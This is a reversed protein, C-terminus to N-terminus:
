VNKKGRLWTQLDRQARWAARSAPDGKSWNGFRPATTTSSSDQASSITDSGNKSRCNGFNRRTAWCSRGSTASSAARSRARCIGGSTPSAARRKCNRSRDGQGPQAACGATPPVSRRGATPPGVAVATLALALGVANDMEAYATASQLADWDGSAWSQTWLGVDVFPQVGMM